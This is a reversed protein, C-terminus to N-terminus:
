YKKLSFSHLAKQFKKQFADYSFHSRTYRQANHSFKRYRKPVILQEVANACEIHSLLKPQVLVDSVPDYVHYSFNIKIGSLNQHHKISVTPYIGIGCVGDCIVEPQGDIIPFIVPIGYYLAEMCSLGFSETIPTSMYIDVRNFFVSMNEQFGSFRVYNNLELKNALRQLEEQEPGQGAIELIINHGRCILEHLTLISVSIGKLSVLRSATGLRVPETLSKAIHNIGIPTILRNLVVLHACPLNFRLEMVRKSAQSVSIVGDLMGFFRMTKSNITYRWSSGHDYYLLKTNKPKIFFEPILDWVIVCDASIKSIKWSLWYKRLIKPCRIPLNNFLRNAFYVKKEILHHQIETGVHNSICLIINKKDSSAKIYQLLLREVGGMQELNIVHIQKM